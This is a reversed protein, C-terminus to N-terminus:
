GDERFKDRFVWYFIAFGLSWFVVGVLGFVVGRMPGLAETFPDM